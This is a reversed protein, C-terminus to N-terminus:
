QYRILDFVIEAVGALPAPKQLVVDVGLAVAKKEAEASINASLLVTRTRPSRARIGAIVELGEFGYSGSLRLDVIAVSYQHTSLLAAAEAAEAACSVQLGKGSLYEGLAFRIPEEDDVILVERIATPAPQTTGPGPM